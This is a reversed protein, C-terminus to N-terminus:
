RLVPNIERNVDEECTVHLYDSPARSHVHVPRSIPYESGDAKWNADELGTSRLIRRKRNLSRKISCRLKGGFAQDRGIAFSESELAIDKAKHGYQPLAVSVTVDKIEVPLERFM